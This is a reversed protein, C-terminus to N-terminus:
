FPSIQRVCPVYLMLNARLIANNEYKTLFQPFVITFYTYIDDSNLGIKIAEYTLYYNVIKM